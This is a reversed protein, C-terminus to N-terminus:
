RPRCSTSDRAARRMRRTRNQAKRFIVGIVGDEAWRRWTAGAGAASRPMASADRAFGLKEFERKLRHRGRLAAVQAILDVDYTVRAPAAPPDTLLLGVACGGVFV